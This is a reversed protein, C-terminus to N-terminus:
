AQPAIGPLLRNLPIITANRPAAVRDAANHQRLELDFSFDMGTLLRLGLPDGAREIARLQERTPHWSLTFSASHLYTDEIGIAEQTRITMSRFMEFYADVAAANRRSGMQALWQEIAARIASQGVPDDLMGPIDYRTEVVLMEQGDITMDGRAGTVSVYATGAPLVPTEAPRLTEPNLNMEPALLRMFGAADVGFWGPDITRDLAHLEDLNAYGYGDVLRLPLGVTNGNRMGLMPALTSPVELTLNLESNIGRVIAQLLEATDDYLASAPDALERRLTRDMMYSGSGRLTFELPLSVTDIQWVMEFNFEVSELRVMTEASRQHLDCDARNLHSCASAQASVVGTLLVLLMVPILLLRRKM